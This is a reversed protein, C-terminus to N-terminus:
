AKAMPEAGGGPGLLQAFMLSDVWGTTTRRDDRLRGEIRFGCRELVRQAGLNQPTTVAWVRHIEMPAAVATLMARLGATAVGNRRHSRSTVFGVEARRDEWSDVNLMVAGAVTEGSLVARTIRRTALENQEAALAVEIWEGASRAPIDNAFSEVAM